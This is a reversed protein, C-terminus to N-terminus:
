SNQYKTHGTTHAALSAAFKTFNLEEAPEMFEGRRGGAESSVLFCAADYLRERILKECLMQYRDAYSTGHFAEFAPFHPESIRVPRQSAATSELLMLYGLWPRRSPKFAGERYATWIDTANGLAEEVRNNFNNGFSGVQSKLEISALLEGDSVVILDWEKTPRFYGPLVTSKIHIDPKPTGNERFLERVLAIFGDLQAGGTVAGRTGYDRKGTAKGQSSQQRKRTRWFHRVAKAVRDDLSQPM